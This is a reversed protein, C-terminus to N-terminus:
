TSSLAFGLKVVECSLSRPCYVKGRLAKTEEGILHPVVMFDVEFLQWSFLSVFLVIIKLTHQKDNPIPYSLM